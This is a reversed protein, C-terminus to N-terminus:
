KRKVSTRGDKFLIVSFAQSPKDGDTTVTFEQSGDVRLQAKAVSDLVSGNNGKFDSLKIGATSKLVAQIAKYEQSGTTRSGKIFKGNEIEVGAMGENIEARLFEIARDLNM